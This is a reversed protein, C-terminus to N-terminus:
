TGDGPVKGAIHPTMKHGIAQSDNAIRDWERRTHCIKRVKALTGIEVERQCIVKDMPNIPVAAVPPTATTADAMLALTLFGLSIVM